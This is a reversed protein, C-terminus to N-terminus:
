MDEMHHNHEPETTETTETTEAPQTTEDGSASKSETPQMQHMYKAVVNDYLATDHVHFYQVKSTAPKALQEYEDMALHEVGTAHKQIHQLWKSYDGVSLAKATFTMDAFGKGSVNSSMGRYDGAVDAKLNLKTSMGSMAYIQGGLQPIWFSNMPADSTIEFEVPQNAPFAVENVSAIHEDPYVFLWKWQLAIVQIHLPKQTSALPKFPDLSHSTVWTVTGLVLIIVIPIGWWVAEVRKDSDWNPRYALKHGARYRWAFSFLMAYVPLLVIVALFTAFLLLDRQRTAVEGRTQLLPFSQNRLLVVLLVVFVIGGLLWLAM